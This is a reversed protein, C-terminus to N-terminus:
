EKDKKKGAMYGGTAGVAGGALAAYPTKHKQVHAKAAQGAAQAKAAGAQAMERGKAAGAQVGAKAKGAMESAKAGAASAGGKIKALLASAARKAGEGAVKDVMFENLYYNEDGHRDSGLKRLGEVTGKEIFAGIEAAAKESEEDMKEEEDKKEATKEAAAADIGDAIQAAIKDFGTRYADNVVIAQAAAEKTLEGAKAQEVLAAMKQEFHGVTSADNHAKVENQVSTSGTDIKKNTNAKNNELQQPPESDASLAEAAMKEIRQDFRSAFYDYSRAGLRDEYAAAEKEAATKTESLVDEPFMSDFLSAMGFDSAKKEEKEEDKKEEEDEEGESAEKTFLGAALALSQIDDDQASAVKESGGLGLEADLMEQLSPM